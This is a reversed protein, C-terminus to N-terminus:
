TTPLRPKLAMGMQLAPALAMPITTTSGLWSTTNNLDSRMYSYGGFVEYKPFDQALALGSMALMLVGVFLLKRMM